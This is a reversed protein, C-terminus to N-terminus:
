VLKAKKMGNAEMPKVHKKKMPNMRRMQKTEKQCTNPKLTGVKILLFVMQFKLIMITM